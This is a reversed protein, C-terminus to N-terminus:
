DEKKSLGKNVYDPYNTKNISVDFLYHSRLTTAIIILGDFYIGYLILVGILAYNSFLALVFPLIIEVVFFLLSFLLDMITLSLSNRFGDKFRLEYYNNISCMYEGSAFILFYIIVGVGIGLGRIVWIDSMQMFFMGGIIAIMLGIANILGVFLGKAWNEKLSDRFSEFFFGSNNFVRDKAVNYIGIRGIYRLMLCPINVLCMIFLLPTIENYTKDSLGTLIFLTIFLNAYFPLSFLTQMLSMDLVLGFDERFIIKFLEIRNKPLRANEKAPKFERKFLKMVM